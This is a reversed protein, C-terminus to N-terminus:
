VWWGRSRRCITNPRSLLCFNRAVEELSDELVDLKEDSRMHGGELQMRLEGGDADSSERGSWPGHERAWLHEEVHGHVIGCGTFTQQVPAYPPIFFDKQPDGQIEIIARGDRRLNTRNEDTM